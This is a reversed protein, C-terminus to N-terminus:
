ECMSVGCASMPAGQAGGRVRQYQSRSGKCRRTGDGFKTSKGRSEVPFSLGTFVSLSDWLDWEADYSLGMGMWGDLVAKGM